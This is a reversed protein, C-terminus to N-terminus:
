RRGSDEDLLNSTTRVLERWLGTLEELAEAGRPSLTYYKRPRSGGVDWRSDLLGQEDLRRLLPYLTGPEVELGREALRGVLSYGHRSERLESLAALALTGRRLELALKEVPDSQRKKKVM